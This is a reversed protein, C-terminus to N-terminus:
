PRRQYNGLLRLLAIGDHLLRKRRESGLEGEKEGLKGLRAAARLLRGLEDDGSPPPPPPPGWDRWGGAARCTPAHGDPDDSRALCESCIIVRDNM